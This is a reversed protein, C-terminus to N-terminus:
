ENQLNPLSRLSSRGDVNSCTVFLSAATPFLVTCLDSQALEDLRRMWRIEGAHRDLAVAGDVATVVFVDGFVHLSTSPSVSPISRRWSPEDSPRTMDWASVEEMRLLQGTWAVTTVAWRDANLGAPAEHEDWAHVTGDAVDVAVWHGAAHRAILFGSGAAPLPETVPLELQWRAREQNRTASYGALSNIGLSQARSARAVVVLNGDARHLSVSTVDDFSRSFVHRGSQLAYVHLQHWDRELLAVRTNTALLELEGQGDHATTWLVSGGQRDFAAVVSEAAVVIVGDVEVARLSLPNLAGVAVSTWRIQGNHGDVLTLQLGELPGIAQRVLLINNNVAVAHAFEAVEPPLPTTWDSVSSAEVSQASGCANMFGCMIVLWVFRYYSNLFKENKM